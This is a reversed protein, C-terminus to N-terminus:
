NVGGVTAAFEELRRLVEEKGLLQMIACLDPTNRRGTVAIRLVTSVDGVHGKFADPNQKYAKVDPSFQLDPCISKM